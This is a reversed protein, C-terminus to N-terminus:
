FRSRRSFATSGLQNALLGSRLHPDLRIPSIDDKAPKKLRERPVSFRLGEFLCCSGVYLVELPGLAGELPGLFGYLPILVAGTPEVPVPVAGNNRNDHM